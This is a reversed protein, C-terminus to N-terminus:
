KGIFKPHRKEFFSTISEEFDPSHILGAQADLEFCQSEEPHLDFSAHITQKIVGVSRPPLRCFKRAFKDVTEDLKAQPVVDHLLGYRRATKADIKEGRLLLEKSAAMGVLRTIRHTGIIVAVGLNVAPVGFVATDSAIRFDCCLALMLGGGLCYGNIKAITPKELYEFENLCAQFSQWRDRFETKDQEIISKVLTIDVGVSFHKGAGHLIIIWVDTNERLQATINRLEYFTEASVRNMLTPRNLTLTAIHNEITLIWNQFESVKIKM